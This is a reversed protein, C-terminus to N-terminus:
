AAQNVKKLLTYVNKQQPQTEIVEGEKEREVEDAKPV